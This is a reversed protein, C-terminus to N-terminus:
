RVPPMTYRIFLEHVEPIAQMYPALIQAHKRLYLTFTDSAWHGITKVVDFPIGRLLYELTAGIQIGHGQLPEINADKFAKHIRTLFAPKTLPRRKKNHVYSFLPDESSPTNVAFHNTLLTQPDSPGAQCSWFVDEGMPAAKTRPLFFATQQLGNRDQVHHVNKRSVHTEPNFSLLTPVTFEGLHAASYFTTTLCAAVAADLPLNLNLHALLSVIIDITYPQRRKRHSSPPQLTYAAKIMADTELTNVHWPMGHLVHWGRVGHLYSALTKSSYNGAMTALFASIILPDVPGRRLDLVDRKDCFVHYVLLRSGYTELTNDGWSFSLVQFIRALDDDTLNSSAERSFLPKWKLLRKRALCHPRLPSPRPTLTPLYHRPKSHSTFRDPIINPSTHVHNTISSQKSGHSPSYLHSQLCSPLPTPIGSTPHTILGSKAPGYHHTSTLLSPVSIRLFQLQLSSSSRQPISVGLPLTQQTQHVPSIAPTSPPMQTQSYAIFIDSSLTSKLMDAEGTGGAKLLPNITAWPRPM